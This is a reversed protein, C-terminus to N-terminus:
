ASEVVAKIRDLTTRMGARNTKSRLPGLLVWYLRLPLAPTLRYFETVSTGAGNPELRYGWTNVAKGGAEVAFVFQRNPECVVVRCTTWYMPGRGNRKVHGQFRADVAPGTAGGIWRGELTEPSFEGIRTVDTILAWVKEPPANMTVTVSDTLPTM